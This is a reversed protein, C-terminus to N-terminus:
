KDEKKDKAFNECTGEQIIPQNMFEFILPKREDKNSIEIKEGPNADDYEEIDIDGLNESLEDEHIYM